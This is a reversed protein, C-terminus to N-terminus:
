FFNEKKGRTIKWNLRYRKVLPYGEADEEITYLKGDKLVAPRDPIPRSGLHRGEPDFIDFIYDGDESKEYTRVFIREESDLIFYRFPPYHNPFEAKYREPLGGLEEFREEIMREKVERTVPLPDYDKIIKKLLRGKQDLLQLEYNKTYGFLIHGERNVVYHVQPSLMDITGSPTRKEEISVVENILEFDSDLLLIQYETKEPTRVPTEVIFRGAHDPRVRILYLYEAASKQRIFEGSLSFLSFCKKAMDYLVLSDGGTIEMTLPLQIEGPGQGKRSVAQVFKGEKDFIKIQCDQFDLVYINGDEDVQLARISAFFHDPSDTKQGWVMEEELTFVDDTYVPEKPNKVVTVGNEETITGQWWPKEHACSFFLVLILIGLSIYLGLFKM